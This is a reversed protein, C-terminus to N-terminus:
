MYTCGVSLSPLVSVSVSCFFSYIFKTNLIKLHKGDNDQQVVTLAGDSEANSHHGLMHLLCTLFLLTSVINMIQVSRLLTTSM